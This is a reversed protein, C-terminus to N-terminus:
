AAASASASCRMSRKEQGAISQAITYLRHDGAVWGILLLGTLPAAAFRWTLAANM